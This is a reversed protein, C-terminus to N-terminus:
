GTTPDRQMQHRIHPRPTNGPPLSRIFELFSEDLVCEESEEANEKLAEMLSGIRGWSKVESKQFGADKLYKYIGHEETEDEDEDKQAFALLVPTRRM